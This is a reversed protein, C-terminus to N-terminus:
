SADSGGIHFSGGDNQKQHLKILNLPRGRAAWIGNYNIGAAMVLILCEDRGISPVAVEEIAFAHMPDGFRDERIVQAHMKAPVEGLPPVYGIPYIELTM